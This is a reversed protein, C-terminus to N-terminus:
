AMGWTKPGVEGDAKLGRASQWVKTATRTKDGFQGDPKAGVIGQWEKVDDGFLGIELVRRGQFALLATPYREDVGRMYITKSATYYGCVGLLRVFEAPSVADDLLAKRANQYRPANIILHMWSQAGDAASDEAAFCTQFHPPDFWQEKGNIIENCRMMQFPLNSAPSRKVNGWNHNYCSRFSATEFMAQALLKPAAFQSAPVDFLALAATVHKAAERLDYTTRVTKRYNPLAYFDQTM